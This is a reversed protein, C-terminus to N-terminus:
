LEKYILLRYCPICSKPVRFQVIKFLLVRFVTCNKKLFEGRSMKFLLALKYFKLKKIHM